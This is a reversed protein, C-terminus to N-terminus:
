NEAPGLRLMIEKKEVEYKKVINVMESEIEKFLTPNEKKLRQALLNHLESFEDINLQSLKTVFEQSRNLVTKVSDTIETTKDLNIKSEDLVEKVESIQKQVFQEKQSLEVERNLNSLELAKKQWEIYKEIEDINIITFIKEYKGFLENQKNLQAKQIFFVVGYIIVSILIILTEISFNM